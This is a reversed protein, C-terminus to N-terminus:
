ITVHADPHKAFINVLIKFHFAESFLQEYETTNGGFPPSIEFSRNFFSGRLKEM